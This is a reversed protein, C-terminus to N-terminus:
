ETMEIILTKTEGKYEVQVGQDLIKVLTVGKITGGEITHKGNIIAFGVKGRSPQGFGTLKLRPWRVNGGGAFLNRLSFGSSKDVADQAKAPSAPPLTASGNAESDMPSGTPKGKAMELLHTLGSTSEGNEDTTGMGYHILMSSTLLLGGILLLITTLMVGPSSTAEADNERIDPEKNLEIM